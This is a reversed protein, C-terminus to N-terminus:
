EETGTATARAKVPAHQRDTTPTTERRKENVEVSQLAMLSEM